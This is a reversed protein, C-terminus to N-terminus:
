EAILCLPVGSLKMACVRHQGNGLVLGSVYIPERYFSYLGEGTLDSEGAARAATIAEGYDPEVGREFCFIASAAAWHWNPRHYDCQRLRDPTLARVFREVHPRCQEFELEDPIAAKLELAHACKFPHHPWPLEAVNAVRMPECLYQDRDRGSPIDILRM